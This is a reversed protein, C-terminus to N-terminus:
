KGGSLAETLAGEAGDGFYEKFTNMMERGEKLVPAFSKVTNILDHQTKILEQTNSTMKELQGPNLNKYTDMFTSFTDVYQEKIDDDEDDSKSNEEPANTPTSTHSGHGKHASKGGKNSRKKTAHKSRNGKSKSSSGKNSEEEASDKDSEDDEDGEGNGAATNTSHHPGDEADADAFGEMSSRSQSFVSKPLAVICSVATALIVVTRWDGLYSTAIDARVLAGLVVLVAVFAVLAGTRKRHAMAIVHATAAILVAATYVDSGPGSTLFTKTNNTLKKASSPMKISILISVHLAQKPTHYPPLPTAAFPFPLIFKCSFPTHHTLLVV